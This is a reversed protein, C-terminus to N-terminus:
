TASSTSVAAMSGDSSGSAYNHVTPKGRVIDKWPRRFCRRAACGGQLKSAVKDNATRLSRSYKRGQFRFIVRYNGNRSELTAMRQSEQTNCYSSAVCSWRATLTTGSTLTTGLIDWFPGPALVFSARVQHLDKGSKLIRSVPTSGARGFATSGLDLKPVNSGCQVLPVSPNSATAVVDNVYEQPRNRIAPSNINSQWNQTLNTDSKVQLM